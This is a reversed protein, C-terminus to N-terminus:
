PSKESSSDALDGGRFTARIQTMQSRVSGCLDFTSRTGQYRPAIEQAAYNVKEAQATRRLEEMECQGALETGRGTM